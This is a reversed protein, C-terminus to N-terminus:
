ASVYSDVRQWALAMDTWLNWIFFIFKVSNRSFSVQEDNIVIL